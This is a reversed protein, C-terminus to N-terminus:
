AWEEGEQLEYDDPVEVVETHPRAEWCERVGGQQPFQQADSSIRTTAVLVNFQPNWPQEVGAELIPLYTSLYKDNKGARGYRELLEVGSESLTDRDTSIQGNPHKKSPKTRPPNGGYAKSVLDKLVSQNESGDARLIGAARFEITNKLDQEEVRKRLAAVGDRNSRIGWTSVLALAFAARMEHAEQHLNPGGEQRQYIELPLAVDRMPYVRAAWPWQELPIGQLLAYKKRWADPGTKDSTLDVGLYREALLRMGYRIGIGDEGREVLDGKAIDLLAERIAIDHVRGEDLAEFILPLLSPDAAAATVLDFALNCGVIHNESELQARLWFLSEAPTLLYVGTEDAVSGCVIPPAVLGPQGLHTELDFASVRM